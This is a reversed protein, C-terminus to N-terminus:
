MGSAERRVSIWEAKPRPLGVMARSCVHDTSRGAQPWDSRAREDAWRRYWLVTLGAEVVAHPFIETAIHKRRCWTAGELTRLSGGARGM